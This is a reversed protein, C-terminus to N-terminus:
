GFPYKHLYVRKGDVVAAVSRKIMESYEAVQERLGAQADEGDPVGTLHIERINGKDTLGELEFSRIVLDAEAMLKARDRPTDLARERETSLDRRNREHLWMAEAAISTSAATFENFRVAIAQLSEQSEELASLRREQRRALLLVENLLDKDSREASEDEESEPSASLEALADELITWNQDFSRNLRDPALASDGLRNNIDSILKLVEDRNKIETM